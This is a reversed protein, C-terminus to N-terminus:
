GRSWKVVLTITSGDIQSSVIEGPVRSTQFIFRCAGRWLPELPPVSVGVPYAVRLEGTTRSTAKWALSVNRVSTSALDGIRSFYESPDLGFIAGIVSLLPTIIPGVSTTTTDLGAEELRAPGHVTLVAEVLNLTLGGDWWPRTHPSTIMGRHEPGLAEQVEPTLLKLKRLSRVLGGVYTSSVEFSTPGGEPM